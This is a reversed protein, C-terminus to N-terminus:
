NLPHPSQSCVNRPCDRFIHGLRECLGCACSLVLRIVRADPVMDSRPEWPRLMDGHIAGQLPRHYGRRLGFLLLRRFSSLLTGTMCERLCDCKLMKRYYALNTMFVQVNETLSVTGPYQSYCRLFAIPGLPHLM